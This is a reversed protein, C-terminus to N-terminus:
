EGGLASRDEAYFVPPVKLFGGDQEPFQERLKDVNEFHGETFVEDERTVNKLMTGGTMPRVEDTNVEQLEKFHNLISTLDTLFKEQEKETLKLRALEALHEISKKNIEFM